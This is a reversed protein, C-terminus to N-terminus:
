RRPRARLLASTPVDPKRRDSRLPRRGAVVRRVLFAVALAEIAIVAVSQWDFGAVGDVKRDYCGCRAGPTEPQM